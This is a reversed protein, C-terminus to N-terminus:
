KRKHAMDIIPGSKDEVVGTVTVKEQQQVNEVSPLPSYPMANAKGSFALFVFLVWLLKRPLVFFLSKKRM